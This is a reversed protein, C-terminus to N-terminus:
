KSIKIGQSVEAGAGSGLDTDTKNFASSRSKSGRDALIDNEGSALLSIDAEEKVVEM